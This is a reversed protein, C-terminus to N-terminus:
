RGLVHGLGRRLLASASLVAFRLWVGAVVAWLLPRPYRDRLFKRYYRVM